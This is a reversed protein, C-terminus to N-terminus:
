RKIRNKIALIFAGFFFWLLITELFSLYVAKESRNAFWKKNDPVFPSIIHSVSYYFHIKFDDILMPIYQQSFNFDFRNDYAFTSNEDKLNTKAILLFHASSNNEESVRSRDFSIVKNKKYAILLYSPTSQTSIYDINPTTLFSFCIITLLFWVLPKFWNTGFSNVAHHIPFLLGYLFSLNSNIYFTYNIYRYNYYFDMAKVSDLSNEYNLSLQRYIEKVKKERLFNNKKFKKLDDAIVISGDFLSVKLIFIMFFDIFVPSLISIYIYMLLISEKLLFFMMIYIIAVGLCAFGLAKLVFKISHVHYINKHYPFQCNQLITKDVKSELLYVNKMDINQFHVYDLNSNRFDAKGYKYKSKEKEEKIVKCNKISKFFKFEKDVIKIKNGFIVDYFRIFAEGIKQTRYKFYLIECNKFIVDSDLEKPLFRVVQFNSNKITAGLKFTSNDFILKKCNFQSFSIHSKFTSNKFYFTVFKFCEKKNSDLSDFIVKSFDFDNLTFEVDEFSIYNIGREIANKVLIAIQKVDYCEKTQYFDYFDLKKM